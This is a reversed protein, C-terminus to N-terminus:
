AASVPTSSHDDLRSAPQASLQNTSCRTPSASVYLRRNRSVSPAEPAAFSACKQRDFTAPTTAFTPRPRISPRTGAITVTNRNGNSTRCTVSDAPEIPMASPTSPLSASLVGSSHHAQAPTSLM